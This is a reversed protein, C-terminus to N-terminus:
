ARRMCSLTLSYMSKTMCTEYMVFDMYEKDDLVNYMNSLPLENLTCELQLSYLTYQRRACVM